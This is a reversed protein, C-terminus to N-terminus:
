RPPLDRKNTTGGEFKANKQNWTGAEYEPMQSKQNM